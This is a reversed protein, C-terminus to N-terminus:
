ALADRLQKLAIHRNLDYSWHGNSGRLREREILRDLRRLLGARGDPGASRAEDFDIGLLRMALARQRAETEERRKSSVFCDAARKLRHHM